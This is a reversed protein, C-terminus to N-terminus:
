PARGRLLAHQPGRRRGQPQDVRLDDSQWMSEIIEALRQDRRRQSRPTPAARYTILADAIERLKLLATRRSAETPHATYVPRVSLRGGGGGSARHDAGGAGAGGRDPGDRREDLRCRGAAPRPARGSRGAGRYEGLPLLDRLGTGAHDGDTPGRLDVEQRARAGGRRRGGQARKTLLRVSEVADLLGASEQRVLTEGLLEGLRRIDRRLAADSPAKAREGTAVEPPASDM